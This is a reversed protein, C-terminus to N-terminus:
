AGALFAEVRRRDPIARRGGLEAAKLAAAAAAWRIRTPADWGFALGAAYV